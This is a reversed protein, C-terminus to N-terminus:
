NTKLGPGRPWSRKSAARPWSSRTTAAASATMAASRTSDGRGNYMPHAHDESSPNHAAYGSDPDTRDVKIRETRHSGEGITLRSRGAGARARCSKDSSPSRCASRRAITAPKLGARFAARIANAKGATVGPSAPKLAASTRVRREREDSPDSARSFPANAPRPARSRKGRSGSSAGVRRGGVSSPFLGSRGASTGPPQTFACARTKREPLTFLDPQTKAGPRSM